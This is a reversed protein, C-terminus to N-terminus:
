WKGDARAGKVCSNCIDDRFELLVQNLAQWFASSTLDANCGESIRIEGGRYDIEIWGSGCAVIISSVRLDALPDPKDAAFISNAFLLFLILIIRRM